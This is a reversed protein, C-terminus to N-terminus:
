LLRFQGLCQFEKNDLTWDCDMISKGYEYARTEACELKSRNTESLIPSLTSFLVSFNSTMTLTRPFGHM